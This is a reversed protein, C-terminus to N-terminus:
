LLGRRELDELAPRVATWPPPADGRELAVLLGAHAARHEAELPVPDCTANFCHNCWEVAEGGCAETVWVSVTRVGTACYPCGERRVEVLYRMRGGSTRLRVVEAAFISRSSQM